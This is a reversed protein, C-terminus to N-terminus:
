DAYELTEGKAKIWNAHALLALAQADLFAKKARVLDDEIITWNDFQILGLAYQAEAITVREQAASLFKKQVNVAEAADVLGAWAQQLTVIIGDLASRENAQAQAFFSKAKSLEASRLGGEFIPMSVTLGASLQNNPPLFRAGSKSAQVEASLEPFFDAQTAKMDFFAANKQAILKGLSPHAAALAEFDPEALSPQSITFDGEVRLPSFKSRGLEKTLERQAVTLARKAQAIEFEAQALNAEATLLAGRHEIGSEYRLMILEFHGRRIAFIDDTITLLEQEKLLSIFASRLRLRVDASTFKYGYEAAKINESASKVTNLTKTGDFLLQTGSLGYSFSNAMRSSTAGSGATTTLGRSADAHAGVQPFLSSKSIAKGAESQTLSEHASILDPHNKRSEEICAKWTLAEEAAAQRCPFLCLFVVSVIKVNTHM